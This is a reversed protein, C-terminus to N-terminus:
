DLLLKILPIIAEPATADVPPRNNTLPQESVVVVGAAPETSLSM